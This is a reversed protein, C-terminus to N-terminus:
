QFPQFGKPDVNVWSGGEKKWIQYDLHPGSSQGTSGVYGIVDGPQVLQGNTVAFDQLHAYGTKYQLNVIWVHNGAPWTDRRCQVIGSHTAYIPTGQTGEPDAEGDKDGDIALDIAGWVHAPAHTGVGYDQTMVTNPKKLPNGAPRYAYSTLGRGYMAGTRWTDVLKKVANAYGNVDNEFAPAYIPLVEDVTLTGREEIYEVDILRYWDEIGEEWSAYDRFRGYCTAYGACIINGVNHTTSGDPKLGAWGPHTGATSEHIFFALAYAPDINYRKGIELWQQGTGTAPSGYAALISDIEEASVSPAGQLHYDGVGRPQAVIGVTQSGPLLRGLPGLWNSLTTTGGAPGLLYLIMISALAVALLLLPQNEAITRARRVMVGPMDLFSDIAYAHDMRYSLAQSEDYERRVCYLYEEQRQQHPDDSLYCAMQEDFPADQLDPPTQKFRLTSHSRTRESEKVSLDFLPPQQPKQATNAPRSPHGGAPPHSRSDGSRPPNGKGTPPTKPASPDPKKKAHAFISEHASPSRSDHSHLHDHRDFLSQRQKQTGHPQTKSRDFLPKKGKNQEQRQKFIREDSESM